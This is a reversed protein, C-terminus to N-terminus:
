CRRRQFLNEAIPPFNFSVSGVVSGRVLSWSDADYHPLFIPVTTQGGDALVSGLCIALASLIAGGSLKMAHRLQRFEGSIRGFDPGCSRVSLPSVAPNFQEEFLHLTPYTSFNPTPQTTPNPHNPRITPASPQPSSTSLHHLSDATLFAATLHIDTVVPSLPAPIICVFHRAIDLSLYV